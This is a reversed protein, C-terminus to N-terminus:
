QSKKSTKKKIDILKTSKTKKLIPPEKEAKEPSTEV